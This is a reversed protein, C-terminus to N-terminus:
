RQKGDLILEQKEFMIKEDEKEIHDYGLLHLLGHVSLFSLERILSHRYEKSQSKAKDVSIYIDGLIRKNLFTNEEKEDELAFSIVDTEKNINRYKANIEKIEKNDTLIVNFRANKVKEMKLCKKLNKKMHKIEENLDYETTNYINFKNLSNFVM